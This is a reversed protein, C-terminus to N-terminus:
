KASSFLAYCIWWPKPPVAEGEISFPRVFTQSYHKCFFSHNVAVELKEPDAWIDQYTEVFDQRTHWLMARNEQLHMYLKEIPQQLRTQLSWQQLIQYESTVNVVRGLPALAVTLQDLLRQRMVMVVVQQEASAISNAVAGCREYQVRWPEQQHHIGLRQALHHRLYQTIQVHSLTASVSLPYLLVQYPTLLALHIKCRKFLGRRPKLWPHLEEEIGLLDPVVGYAKIAPPNGLLWHWQPMALSAASPAYASLCLLM